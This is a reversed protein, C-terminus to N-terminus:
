RKVRLRVLKPVARANGAPDTVRASLKLALGGKRKLHRALRAPLRMAVTKTGGAPVTLSRAKLQVVKRKAAVAKATRARLTGTVAFANRNTVRVKVSGKPRIRKSALALTVRTDAGFAQRPPPPPAPADLTLKVNDAVASSYTQDDDTSIVRVRIGRTGAPLSASGARRVLTTLRRRDAATVPGIELSGLSAGAAGLFEARVAMRDGFGLAGGLYASLNATALGADISAASASVDVTQSAETVGGTASSNGGWLMNLGGTLFRPSALRSPSYAHSQLGYRAFTMGGTRQWGPIAPSQTATGAAGPGEFGGNALLNGALPAPGTGFRVSVNGDGYNATALDVAGDGNFDGLALDVPEGGLSVDPGNVFGGRGDGLRLSVTPADSNAVALDENGDSNFDGVAPTYPHDGVPVDPGGSFTGDGKGFRVSVVDEDGVGAALDLHGDSNFDGTTWARISNASGPLAIDAGATFAGGGAGVLAGGKPANGFPGFALDEKGDSDLDGVTLTAANSASEVGAAFKGDGMGLRVTLQSGLTQDNIALALDEKGDADFDGVVMAFPHRPLDIDPAATFTGDGVGLRVSVDKDDVNTVAMDDRGDANFDAVVVQSPNKGVEVVPAATFGGDARGLSVLVQKSSSSVAAIDQRGDSNFDGVAVSTPGGLSIDPRGAFGADAALAGPVLVLVAATAAVAAGAFRSRFNTM